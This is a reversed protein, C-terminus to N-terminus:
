GRNHLYHRLPALSGVLVKARKVMDSGFLDHMRLREKRQRTRLEECDRRAITVSPLHSLSGRSIM